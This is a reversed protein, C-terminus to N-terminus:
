KGSEYKKIRKEEKHVKAALLYDRYGLPIVMLCLILQYSSDINPFLFYGLAATAGSQV